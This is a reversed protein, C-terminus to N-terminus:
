QLVTISNGEFTIIKTHYIFWHYLLSLPQSGQYSVRCKIISNALNVSSGYAGLRRSIALFKSPNRIDKLPVSCELIAKETEIMALADVRNQAMRSLSVPQNPTRISNIIFIYDRLNASSPSISDVIINQNRLIENIGFISYCRQLDTAILMENSLSNQPINVRTDTYSNFQLKLKGSRAQQVMQELYKPPSEVVNAVYEVDSVEYRAVNNQLQAETNLIQAGAYNPTGSSSLSCVVQTHQALIGTTVAAVAVQTNIVSFEIQVRNNTNIKVSSVVSDLLALSANTQVLPAVLNYCVRCKSGVKISCNEISNITYNVAGADTANELVLGSIATNAPIGGAPVPVVAGVNNVYGYLGYAGDNATPVQAVGVCKQVVNLEADVLSGYGISHKNLTNTVDKFCEQVRLFKNSDLLTIEIILGNLVILPLLEVKMSSLLGSMPFRYLIQTKRANDTLNNKSIKYYQSGFGGGRNPNKYAGALDLAWKRNNVNAPVANDLFGPVFEKNIVSARGEFINRLNEDNESSGYYNKFAQWIEVSDLQELVTMGDGTRITITEFPCGGLLPDPIVYNPNAPHNGTSSGLLLSFLLYSDSTNILPASEPSVHIIVRQNETYIDNGRESNFSISKNSTQM